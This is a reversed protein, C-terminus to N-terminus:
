LKDVIRVAVFCRKGPTISHSRDGTSKGSSSQSTAGGMPGGRGVAGSLVPGVRTQHWAVMANPMHHLASGAAARGPGGADYPMSWRRMSGDADCGTAGGGSGGGSGGSGGGGSGGGSGGASGAAGGAVAAGGGGFGGYVGGYVYGTGGADAGTTGAAAESWRRQTSLPFLPCNLPSRAGGRHVFPAKMGLLNGPNPLPGRVTDFFTNHAHSPHFQHQHSPQQQQQPQPHHASHHSHGLAAHLHVTPSAGRGVAPAAMATDAMAYPIYENSAQASPSGSSAFLGSAAAPRMSTPTFKPSQQQHSAHQAGTSSQAVTVFGSTSQRLMACGDDHPCGIPAQCVFCCMSTSFSEYSAVCFQHQINIMTQTTEVLLQQNHERIRQAELPDSSAAPTTAGTTTTSSTSASPCHTTTTATTNANPGGALNPDVIHASYPTPQQAASAATTTVFDQLVNVIHSKVTSTAVATARALDDWATM